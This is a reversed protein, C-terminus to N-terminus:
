FPLLTLKVCDSRPTCTATAPEHAVIAQHLPLVYSDYEGDFFENEVHWVKAMGPNTKCQM